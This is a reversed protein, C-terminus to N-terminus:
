NASQCFYDIVQDRQMLQAELFGIRQLAHELRQQTVCLQTRAVDLRTALEILQSDESLRTQVQVALGSTEIDIAISSECRYSASTSMALDQGSAPASDCCDDAAARCEVGHDNAPIISSALSELECM